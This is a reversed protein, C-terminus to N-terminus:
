PLQLQAKLGYMFLHDNSNDKELGSVGYQLEPGIAIVTKNLMFSYNLGLNSFLQMRYFADKNHFYAQKSYDFVLGNTQVLYQLSLGTNLNLSHKKLLQWGLSVPLSIFHYRNHYSQWTINSYLSRNNSFYQAVSYNGFLASQAVRNGVLISNSYYNYQLGTSFFTRRALQKKIGAQAAFSFGEKVQSPPYYIVGGNQAGGANPASAYDMSKNESLFGNFVDLRGTGSVGASVSFVPKWKSVAYKKTPPQRVLASDNKITDTKSIITEGVKEADAVSDVKNDPSMSVVNSDGVNPNKDEIQNQKIQEDKVLGSISEPNKIQTQNHVTEDNKISSKKNEEIVLNEKQVVIEQTPQKTSNKEVSPLRLSKDETRIIASYMKKEPQVPLKTTLNEENPKKTIQKEISHDTETIPNEKQTQHKLTENNNRSYSVSNSYQDIGIWLGGGLLLVFLPIWFILRRRDKKKRIQMEVKQWVPESPVLKLEEMKQQVQKEFENQM